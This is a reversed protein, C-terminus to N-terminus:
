YCDKLPRSSYILITRSLSRKPTIFMHLGLSCLVCFSSYLASFLFVFAGEIERRWDRASEETDFEIVGERFGVAADFMIHIVKEHKPDQPMVQVISSVVCVDM